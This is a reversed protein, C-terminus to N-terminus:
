QSVADWKWTVTGTHGQVIDDTASVQLCLNITENMSISDPIPEGATFAAGDCGFEPTTVADFDLDAAVLSGGADISTTQTLDADTTGTLKIAYPAYVVDGPSLNTPNVAFTLAAAGADSAHEEFSTGNTSGQFTFSGATFTSKAFESDNWAALTVAAGVGLVLGGALIAYVRRRRLSASAAPAIPSHETLNGERRRTPLM